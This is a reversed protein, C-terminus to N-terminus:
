AVLLEVLARRHPGPLVPQPSFSVGGRKSPKVVEFWVPIGGTGTESGGRACTGRGGTDGAGDRRPLSRRPTYRAVVGRCPVGPDLQGIM